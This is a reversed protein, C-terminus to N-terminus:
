TFNFNNTRQVRFYDVALKIPCVSKHFQLSEQKMIVLTDSTLLLTHKLTQKWDLQGGPVNFINVDFRSQQKFNYM